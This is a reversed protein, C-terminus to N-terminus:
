WDISYNVIFDTTIDGDQNYIWIKWSGSEPNNFTMIEPNSDYDTYSGGGLYVSPDILDYGYKIGQPSEVVLDPYDGLDINAFLAEVKLLNGGSVFISGVM